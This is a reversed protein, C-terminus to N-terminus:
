CRCINKDDKVPQNFKYSDVRRFLSLTDSELRVVSGKPFDAQGDKLSIVHQVPSAPFGMTPLMVIYGDTLPSNQFVWMGEQYRHLYPITMSFDLSGTDPRIAQVFVGRTSYGNMDTTVDDTGVSIILSQSDDYFYGNSQLVPHSTRCTGHAMAFTTLCDIAPSHRSGEDSRTLAIVTGNEAAAHIFVVETTIPLSVDKGDLQFTVSKASPQIMYVLKGNVAQMSVANDPSGEAPVQLSATGVRRSTVSSTGLGIKSISFTSTNSDILSGSFSTGHEAFGSYDIWPLQMHLLQPSRLRGTQRSREANFKEQQTQFLMLFGFLFFAWVCLRVAVIAAPRPGDDYIDDFSENMSNTPSVQGVVQAQYVRPSDFAPARRLTVLEISRDTRAHAQEVRQTSPEAEDAAVEPSSRGVPLYRVFNNFM